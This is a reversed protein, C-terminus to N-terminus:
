DDGGPAGGARVCLGIGVGVFLAGATAAIFPYNAISPIIPPFLECLAYFLSFSGGAVASYIIFRFGLVRLGLAYCIFNMVFGSLAPSVSFHHLLLMTLGLIGGETISSISHINYLGFALIGGGIINIICNQATIESKIKKKVSNQSFHKWFAKYEHDFFDGGNVYLEYDENRWSYKVGSPTYGNKIYFANRRQRQENNPSHDTIRELDAIIRQNPKM